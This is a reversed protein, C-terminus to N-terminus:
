SPQHLLKHRLFHIFFVKEADTFRRHDEGAKRKPPVPRTAPDAHPIQTEDHYEIIPGGRRPRNAPTIVPVTLKSTGSPSGSKSSSAAAAKAVPGKKAPKKITVEAKMGAAPSSVRDTKRRKSSRPSDDSDPSAARRRAHTEAAFRKELKVPVGTRRATQGARHGSKRLAPAIRPGVNSASSEPAVEEAARDDDSMPEGLYIKPYLRELNDLFHNTWARSSHGHIDHLRKLGKRASKNAHKAKKLMGILLMDDQKDFTDHPEDGEDAAAPQQMAQMLQQNHVNVWGQPGFNGGWGNNIGWYAQGPQQQQGQTHQGGPPVGPGPTAGMPVGAGMGVGLGIGMGMGPFAMNMNMGMGSPGFGGQMQQQFIQNYLAAHQQLSAMEHNMAQQGDM